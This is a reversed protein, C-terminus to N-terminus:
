CKLIMQWFSLEAVADEVAASHEEPIMEKLSRWENQWGPIDNVRYKAFVNRLHRRQYKRMCVGVMTRFPPTVTSISNGVLSTIISSSRTQPNSFGRLSLISSSCLIFNQATNLAYFTNERWAVERSNISWKIFQSLLQQLIQRFLRDHLEFLKRERNSDLLNVLQERKLLLQEAEDLSVTVFTVSEAPSFGKKASKLQVLGNEGLEIASSSGRIVYGVLAACLGNKQASQSIRKLNSLGKARENLNIIANAFVGATGAEQGLPYRWDRQSSHHNVELRFHINFRALKICEACLQRDIQLIANETEESSVKMAQNKNPLSTQSPLANDSALSWAKAGFAYNLLLLLCVAKILRNIM